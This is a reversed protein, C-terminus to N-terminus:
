WAQGEEKLEFRFYDDPIIHIEIGEFVNLQETTLLVNKSVYLAKIVGQEKIHKQLEDAETDSMIMRYQSGDIKVGHELQIMEAVHELLADSLFEEGRSVFDTRYYKLNAPIGDSYSSGDARKGTIVTKIRPYTVNDCIGNENNTCLIYSLNTERLKNYELVAQATTGSGAFFDLVISDGYSAIELIRNILRIPKPNNFLVSGLVKKLDRAGEQNHGVEENRWWTDPTRGQQVEFLFRKKRPFSTGNKGFWVKNEAILEKMNEESYVWHKGIPVNFIKGTPGIVDYNGNARTENAVLDGSQWVGRPDNDPNKYRSNMEDTRELLHIKIAEIKKAYILLYDHNVSLYKADNKISHIKQWVCTTVFNEEGFISDCVLKLNAYENDDISIFILGRNSLLRHAIELRESIFSCWKSHIYSDIKDVFKDEYVFDKNGTNYPPDIYIVDIKGKHTKELLYLSHLNDGELLFNYPKGPAASIGREKVETFVPIHTRMQADVKEEHEEWVLGYKKSNLENEIEGLAILMEDDNKHEEKIKEFFELMRKRKMQSLNPM